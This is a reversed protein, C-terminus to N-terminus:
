SVGSGSDCSERARARACTRVYPDAATDWETGVGHMCARRCLVLFRVCRRALRDTLDIYMIYGVPPRRLALDRARTRRRRIRRVISDSMARPCPPPGLGAGGVLVLVGSKGCLRMM